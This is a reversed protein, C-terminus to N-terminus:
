IITIIAHEAIGHFFKIFEVTQKTKKAKTFFEDFNIPTTRIKLQVHPKVINRPTTREARNLLSSTLHKGPYNNRHGTLQRICKSSGYV